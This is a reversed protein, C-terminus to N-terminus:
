PNWTLRGAPFVAVADPKVQVLGYFAADGCTRARCGMRHRARGTLTSVLGFTEPYVAALSSPADSLIVLVVPPHIDRWPLAVMDSIAAAAPTETGVTDLTTLPRGSTAGPVRCAM